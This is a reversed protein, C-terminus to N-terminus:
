VSESESVASPVTDSTRPRYWILYVIELIGVTNLVLLAIFWGRQASRAAYWLAYGKIVIVWLMVLAFLALLFPSSSPTFLSQLLTLDHMDASYVM